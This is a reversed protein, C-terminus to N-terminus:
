RKEVNYKIEKRMRAWTRFSSEPHILIYQKFPLICNDYMEKSRSWLPHLTRDEKFRRRMTESQKKHQEKTHTKGFGHIKAHEKKTIMVLNSIDNNDRNGDVHHIVMGKPIYDIGKSNAIFYEKLQKSNFKYPM